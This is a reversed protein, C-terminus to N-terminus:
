AFMMAIYPAVSAATSMIDGGGGGSSTGQTNGSMGVGGFMNMISGLDNVTSSQARSAALTNAAQANISAIAQANNASITALTESSHLLQPLAQYNTAVVDRNFGIDAAQASLKAANNEKLLAVSTRNSELASRLGALTQNNAREIDLLQTTTARYNAADLASIKQSNDIHSFVNSLMTSTSALEVSNLQARTAYIDKAAAIRAADITSSIGALKVNADSAIQQSQLSAAISSNGGGGSSRMLFIVALAGVAIPLPHKKIMGLFDAAM